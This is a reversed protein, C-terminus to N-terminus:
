GREEDRRPGQLPRYAFWGVSEGRARAERSKRLLEASARVPPLEERVSWCLRDEHFVLFVEDDELPNFDQPDDGDPDYPEAILAWEEPTVVVTVERDDDNVRIRGGGLDVVPGLLALRELLWPWREAVQAATPADKPATNLRMAVRSVEGELMRAYDEPEDYASLDRWRASFPAHAVGSTPGHWWPPPTGRVQFAVEVRPWARGDVVRVDLVELDEDAVLDPLLRRVEDLFEDDVM